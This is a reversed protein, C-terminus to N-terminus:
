CPFPRAAPRTHRATEPAANAHRPTRWARPARESDRHLVGRSHLHYVALAIQNAIKSAVRESYPGNSVLREFLQGGVAVEMVLAVDTCKPSDASEKIWSVLLLEVTHPHRGVSRMASIEQRAMAIPVQELSMIKVAVARGTAAETALWVEGFAGLGLRKQFSYRQKLEARTLQVEETSPPEPAAAHRSDTNDRRQRRLEYLGLGAAGLAVVAGAPRLWSAHLPRPVASLRRMTQFRAMMAPRSARRAANMKPPGRRLCPVIRTGPNREVCVLASARRQEEAEAARRATPYNPQKIM